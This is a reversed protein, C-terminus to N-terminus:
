RFLFYRVKTSAHGHHNDKIRRTQKTITITIDTVIIAIPLKSGKKKKELILLVVEQQQFIQFVNGKHYLHKRQLKNNKKTKKKELVM